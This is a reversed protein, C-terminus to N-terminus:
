RSVMQTVLSSGNAVLVGNTFWILTKFLADQIAHFNALCFMSFYAVTGIYTLYNWRELIFKGMKSNRAEYVPYFQFECWYSKTGVPLTSGIAENTLRTSNEGCAYNEAYLDKVTYPTGEASKHTLTYSISNSMDRTNENKAGYRNQIENMSSARSFGYARTAKYMRMQNM